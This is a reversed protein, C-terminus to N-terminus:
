EQLHAQYNVKRYRNSIVIHTCPPFIIKHINGLILSSIVHSALHVTTELYATIQVINKFYQYCCKTWM